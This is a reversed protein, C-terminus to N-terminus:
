TEIGDYKDDDKLMDLMPAHKPEEEHIRNLYGPEGDNTVPSYMDRTGPRSISGVSPMVPLHRKEMVFSVFPEIEWVM